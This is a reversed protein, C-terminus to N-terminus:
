WGGPVQSKKALLAKEERELKEKKRKERDLRKQERRERKQEKETVVVRKDEEELDGGLDEEAEVVVEAVDREEGEEQEGQDPSQVGPSAGEEQQQDGGLATKRSVDQVWGVCKTSVVLVDYWEACDVVSEMMKLSNRVLM